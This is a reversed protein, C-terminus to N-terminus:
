WEGMFGRPILEGSGPVAVSSTRKSVSPNPITMREKLGDASIFEFTGNQLIMEIEVSVSRSGGVLLIKLALEENTDPVQSKGAREERM